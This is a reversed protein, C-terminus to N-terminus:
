PQVPHHQETQHFSRHGTEREPGPHLSNVLFIGDGVRVPRESYTIRAVYSVPESDQQPRKDQSLTGEQSSNLPRLTEVRAILTVTGKYQHIQGLMKGEDFRSEDAERIEKSLGYIPFERFYPDPDEHTESDLVHAVDETIRIIVNDNFALFLKGHFDERAMENADDPVYGTEESAIITGAKRIEEYTVITKGTLHDVKKVKIRNVGTQAIGRPDAVFTFYKPFEMEYPRGRDYHGETKSAPPSPPFPQNAKLQDAPYITLVDGVTLRHPNTLNKRNMEWLKPWFSRDGYYRECIGYLTDGQQVTHKQTNQAMAPVSFSLGLVLTITMVILFRGPKM